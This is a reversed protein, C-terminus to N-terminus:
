GPFRGECASLNLLHLHSPEMRHRMGRDEGVSSGKLGSDPGPSGLPVHCPFSLQGRAVSSRRLTEQSRGPVPTGGAKSGM